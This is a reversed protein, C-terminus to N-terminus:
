SIDAGSHVVSGATPTLIGNITRLTTTKGAGNRGVLSVVEGEDVSLSLGRLVQTEGYGAEVNEVSLLPQDGSM